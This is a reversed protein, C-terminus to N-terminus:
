LEGFVPDLPCSVYDRALGTLRGWLSALSLDAIRISDAWLAFASSGRAAQGVMDPLASHGASPSVDCAHPDEEGTALLRDIPHGFEAEVVRCTGPRPQTGVDAALWRDLQRLSLAFDRVQMTRARDELVDLTQERTLRRQRMLRQLLTVRERAVM